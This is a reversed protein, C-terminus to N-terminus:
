GMSGAAPSAIRISGPSRTAKEPACRCALMGLVLRCVRTERSVRETSISSKILSRPACFISPADRHIAGPHNALNDSEFRNDDITPTFGTV